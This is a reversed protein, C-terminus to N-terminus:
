FNLERKHLSFRKNCTIEKRKVLFRLYCPFNKRSVSFKSASSISLMHKIKQHNEAKMHKYANHKYFFVHITISIPVEHPASVTKKLDPQLTHHRNISKKVFACTESHPSPPRATGPRTLAPGCTSKSENM